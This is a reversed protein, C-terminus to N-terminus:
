AAFGWKRALKIALAQNGADKAATVQAMRSERLAEADAAKKAADAAKKAADAVKKAAIAAKKEAVRATHAACDAENLGTCGAPTRYFFGETPVSMSLVLPATFYYLVVFVLGHVAAVTLKSGKKPLTLLVGPTLVVFLLMLYASFYLDM